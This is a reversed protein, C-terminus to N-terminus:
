DVDRFLLLAAAAAALDDRNPAEPDIWVRGRNVTEVVAFPREGRVIEYGFPEGGPLGGGAARHVSRVDYTTGGVQRLEGVLSPEPKGTRTLALVSRLQGRTFGCVLIPERGLSAQLFVGASGVVIERTHCEVNTPVGTGELTMRYAQDTKGVDLMGLDVLFSRTTGENVSSTRWAGFSLPQNWRRPNAGEVNVAAPPIAIRAPEVSACAAALLLLIAFRKM